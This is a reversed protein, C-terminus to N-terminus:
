ARKLEVTRRTGMVSFDFVLSGKQYLFEKTKASSLAFHSPDDIFKSVMVNDGPQLIDFTGYWLGTYGNNVYMEVFITGNEVKAVMKSGTDSTESEWKGGLDTPMSIQVANTKTPESSSSNKQVPIAILSVATGLVVLLAAVGVFWLLKKM